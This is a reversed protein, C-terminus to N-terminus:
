AASRGNTAGNEIASSVARNFAKPADIMPFHGCDDLVIISPDRLTQRMMDIKAITPGKAGYVVQQRPPVLPLDRLIDYERLAWMVSLTTKTGAKCRDINWRELLEPTVSKLRPAVREMTQTVPAYNSETNAWSSKWEAPTRFPCEVISLGSCRDAHHAGLAVCIAGGISAGAVHARQIGLRDMFDVVAEAYDEVRLHAQLPDSDGQGPMDWAIVRYSRALGEIAHEYEYASGGNSHLLILPTGSGSTLYHLRGFRSGVFGDEVYHM